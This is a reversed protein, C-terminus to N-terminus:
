KEAQPHQQQQLPFTAGSRQIGTNQYAENDTSIYLIKHGREVAGSISGFGIDFM